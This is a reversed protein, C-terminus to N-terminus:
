IYTDNRADNDAIFYGLKLLIRIKLLIPMVAKIINENTYAEKIRRIDILYSRNVLDKDLYYIVIKVLALGNFLSWKNFNIYIRFRAIV